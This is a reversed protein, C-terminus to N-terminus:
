DRTGENITRPRLLHLLQARQQPRMLRLVPAPPQCHVVLQTVARHQVAQLIVEQLAAEQPAVALLEEAELCVAEPCIVALRVVVAAGLGDVVEEVVVWAQVAVAWAAALLDEAVQRVEEEVVRCEAEAALLVVVQLVVVLEVPLIVQQLAAPLIVVRVAPRTVEEPAVERVEVQAEELPVVALCVAEVEVEVPCEVEVLCVAEAAAQCVEVGDVEEVVQRAWAAAGAALLEV